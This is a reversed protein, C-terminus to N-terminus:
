PGLSIRLLSLRQFSPHPYHHLYVHLCLTSICDESGQLLPALRSGKFTSTDQHTQSSVVRQLLVEDTCTLLFSTVHCLLALFHRVSDENKADYTGLARGSSYWGQGGSGSGLLTRLPGEKHM